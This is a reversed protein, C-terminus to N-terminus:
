QFKKWKRTDMSCDKPLNLFKEQQVKKYRNFVEFMSKREEGINVTGVFDSGVIKKLIKVFDKIEIKSCFANNAAIEGIKNKDFFSTRIICHNNLMNVACEGGLKSWGYFNYPIAPSKESYNGESGEYVGDTSIYVFRMQEQNMAERVLNSTGIINTKIASEPKKECESMRALAGCHIIRNFNKSNFYKRISETDTIDMEKRTPTLLDFLKSEIIKTGLNGTGGTLLTKM